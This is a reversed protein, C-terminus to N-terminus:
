RLALLLCPPTLPLVRRAFPQLGYCKGGTYVDRICAYVRRTHVRACACLCVSLSVHPTQRLRQTGDCAVGCFEGQKLVAREVRRGNILLGNTSKNDVICWASRQLDYSLFAHQRSIMLPQKESCIFLLSAPNGQEAERGCVYKESQDLQFATPMDPVPEQEGFEFRLQAKASKPAATGEHRRTTIEAERRLREEQRKAEEAERRLREEEKRKAEEAERRVREEEKRKAEEAERLRALGDIGIRTAAGEQRAPFFELHREGRPAARIGTGAVRSHCFKSAGSAAAEATAGSTTTEVLNEEGPEM